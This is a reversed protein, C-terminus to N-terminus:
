CPHMRMICCKKQQHEQNEETNFKITLKRKKEPAKDSHANKMHKKLEQVTTEKKCMGCPVLSSSRTNRSPTLTPAAARAFTPPTPSSTPRTRESNMSKNIDASMEAQKNRLLFLEQKVANQTDLVSKLVNGLEVKFTEFLAFSESIINLQKAMTLLIFIDEHDDIV